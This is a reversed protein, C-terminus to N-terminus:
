NGPIFTSIEINSREITSLPFSTARHFPSKIGTGDETITFLEQFEDNKVSDISKLKEDDFHIVTEFARQENRCKQEKLM